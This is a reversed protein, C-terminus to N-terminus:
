YSNYGNSKLDSIYLMCPTGYLGRRVHIKPGEFFRTEYLSSWGVTDICYEGSVRGNRIHTSKWNYM